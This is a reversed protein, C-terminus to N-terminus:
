RDFRSRPRQRLWADRAKRRTGLRPHRIRNGCPVGCVRCIGGAGRTPVHPERAQWALLAADEEAQRAAVEANFERASESAELETGCRDCVTIAVPGGMSPDGGTPDTDVPKHGQAECVLRMLATGADM